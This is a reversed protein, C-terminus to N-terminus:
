FFNGATWLNPKKCAPEEFISISDLFVGAFVNCFHNNKSSLIMHETVCFFIVMSSTVMAASVNVRSVGSSKCKRQWIPNNSIITVLSFYYTFLTVKKM